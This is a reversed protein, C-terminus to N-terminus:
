MGGLFVDYSAAAASETQGGCLATIHNIDSLNLSKDSAKTSKLIGTSQAGDADAYLDKNHTGGSEEVQIYAFLDNAASVVASCQAQTLGEVELVFGRNQKANNAVSFVNIEEGTFPNQLDEKAVKGMSILATKLKKSGEEDDVTPYEAKSRYTGVLATQTNNLATNLKMLNQSDIARQALIVVGAAIVGMIGLVIIVELLTMGKLSSYKKATLLM